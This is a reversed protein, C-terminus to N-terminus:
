LPMVAMFPHLVSCCSYWKPLDEVNGTASMLLAQSQLDYLKQLVAWDEATSTLRIHAFGQEEREQLIANDPWMVQYATLIVLPLAAPAQPM